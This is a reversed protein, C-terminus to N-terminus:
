PLRQVVVDIFSGYDDSFPGIEAQHLAVVYQEGASGAITAEDGQLLPHANGDPGFFTVEAPLYEDDGAQGCFDLDEEFTLPAVFDDVYEFSGDGGTRALALLLGGDTELSDPDRLSLFEGDSYWWRLYSMDVLEGAQWPVEVSALTFSLAMIPPGMPDDACDLTMSSADAASITCSGQWGAGFEVGPFFPAKWAGVDITFSEVAEPVGACASNGTDGSSGADGSGGTDSSVSSSSPGSGDSSAAHDDATDSAVEADTDTDAMLDNTAPCATSTAVMSAIAVLSMSRSMM